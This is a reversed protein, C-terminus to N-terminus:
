FIVTNLEHGTVRESRLEPKGPTNYQETIFENGKSVSKVLLIVVDDFYSRAESMSLRKIDLSGKKSNM